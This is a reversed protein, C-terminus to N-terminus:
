PATADADLRQFLMEPGGMGGPGGRMGGRMGGMPGGDRGGRPGMAERADAFETASLAGDGDADAAELMRDVGTEARAAARAAAAALLEDRTLLGDGDTDAAAFRLEAANEVEARTVAGDGDADFMEFFREGRMAGPGAGDQALAPAVLGAPIMVGLLAAKWISM